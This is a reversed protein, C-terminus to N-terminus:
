GRTRRAARRRGKARTATGDGSGVPDEAETGRTEGATESATEADTEDASSQAPASESSSNARKSAARRRKPKSAPVADGDEASESGASASETKSGSGSDSGSDPGSGSSTTKRTARRRGRTSRKTSSTRASDHDDSKDASADVPEAPEGDADKNSTAAPEFDEPRPAHDSRSNGRTKRKRRPSNEFEELAEEYTQAPASGADAQATDAQAADASAADEPAGQAPADEQEDQASTRGKGRGSGRRGRRRSARRRTSPQGEGTEANDTDDNDTGANDTEAGSESGDASDPDSDADPDAIVADILDAVDVADREVEDRSADANDDVSEHAPTASSDDASDAATEGRHKKMALAAPHAGPNKAPSRRKKSRRDDDDDILSHEVPDSTIHLGRGDCCECKTSFSELLGAGIRKRTLQVLGLSTVESVEFRTRDRTLAENLRRLVLDQNEPLIMDIFDVIIMGGIDRLRLMRVIEEAAEINNATVTQELSGGDGTFRGTNVDIVTMAETKDIVLSGGSPLPVVRQLATALQGDIDYLAFADKGDNNQRDSASFKEVRDLLDPAVSEVYKHVTNWPKTGDVILKSFDENFMDRVVKVLLDPEEYLTVPKAGRGKKKKEATEVITDWQTHLRNVDAAIAEEPVGEAATRIITGGENGAVRGLIEKLRKREPAPLKRSIGATRGGPVYVLYRGALSIQTTLRAGKHGIPDKTVQVLVQDGNKLAQEIKRSRGGLGAAKWDVEGAYLVGNRGLGIDIFAAEMSPLVNQVRGLYINGIISANQDSTVFHEVLKGDELVGVETITGAGDHRARERVVMTREIAERRALFERQSVIRSRKKDEDRRETRRRRQAELRSSGKIAKPEEIVEVPEDNARRAGSSSSAQRRGSARRTGGRRKGGRSGGETADASETTADEALSDDDFSDLQDGADNRESASSESTRSARRRTSRPAAKFIPAYAEAAAETDDEPLPTIEPAVDTLLDDSEAPVLEKLVDELAAGVAAVSADDAEDAEQPAEQPAEQAVEDQVEVPEAPEAQATAGEIHDLVREAEERTLASQAVKKLDLESLKVVLEKSTMGLM